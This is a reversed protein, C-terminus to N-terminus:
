ATVVTLLGPLVSPTQLHLLHLLHLNAIGQIPVGVVPWLIVQGVQLLQQLVALTAHLLPGRQHAAPLLNRPWTLSRLVPCCTAHGRPCHRPGLGRCNPEWVEARGDLIEPSPSSPQQSVQWVLHLAQMCGGGLQLDSGLMCSDTTPASLPTLLIPYCPASVPRHLELLQPARKRQLSTFVPWVWMRHTLLHGYMVCTKFIIIAM